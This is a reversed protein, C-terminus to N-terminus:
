NKEDKVEKSCNIVGQTPSFYFGKIEGKQKQAQKELKAIRKELAAIKNAALDLTTDVCKDRYMRKARRKVEKEFRKRSIIM